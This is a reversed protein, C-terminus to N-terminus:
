SVRRGWTQVIRPLSQVTGETNAFAYLEDITQDVADAAAVDAAVAADAVMEMTIPAILKVEGSFGAPQVVNMAIDELGSERLLGPLRPGINPDCGRARATKSYWEVYRAFAPSPPYCFHGSCDIDEVVLVGGPDVRATISELATAPDALHTFLFRAYVVDFGQGDVPPQLVDEVRFETNDVGAEATEARALEVKTADLDTGVVFGDSAIQALERTVDGGGCGLDLCRATPAIGVRAFLASTTPWMVRALVRLRERGELGGRIVYTL